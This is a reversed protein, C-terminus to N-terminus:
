TGKIKQATEGAFRDVIDKWTHMGSDPIIELYEPSNTDYNTELISVMNNFSSSNRIDEEHGKLEPYIVTAWAVLTDGIKSNVLKVIWATNYANPHFQTGQGSAKLPISQAAPVEHRIYEQEKKSTSPEASPGTGSTGEFHKVTEIGITGILVAKIFWKILGALVPGKKLGFLSRIVGGLMSTFGAEKDFSCNKRLVHVIQGQKEIQYFVELSAQVNNGTAKEAIEDIDQRSLSGKSEVTSTVLNKVYNFITEINIGFASLGIGAITGVPGFFRGFISPTLYEWVAHWGNTKFNNSVDSIITQAFGKLDDVIGANKIIDKDNSLGAHIIIFKDLILCDQEFSM